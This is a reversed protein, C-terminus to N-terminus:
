ERTIQKRLGIRLTATALYIERLFLGLGAILALLATGFIVAVVNTFARDLYASAFLAGISLCVLLASAVIFTIARNMLRARRALLHLERHQPTREESHDALREELTRARDIIRAIRNTMAGLIAGIATLLFVPAIALQIFHVVSDVQTTIAVLPDPNM